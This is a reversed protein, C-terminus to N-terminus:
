FRKNRDLIKTTRIRQRAALVGIEIMNSSQRSQTGDNLKGIYPSDNQIIVASHKEANFQKITKYAQAIAANANATENLKPGSRKPYPSYAPIEGYLLFDISARWNSRAKGTDVPTARVAAEQFGMAANQVLRTTGFRVAKAYENMIRQLDGITKKAM